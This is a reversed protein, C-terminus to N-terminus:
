GDSTEKQYYDRMKAGTLFALVDDLNGAYLWTGDPANVQWWEADKQTVGWGLNDATTHLMTERSARM